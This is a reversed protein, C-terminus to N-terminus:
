VLNKSLKKSYFFSWILYIRFWQFSNKTTGRHLYSKELESFCGRKWQLSPPQWFYKKARFLFFFSCFHLFSLFFSLFFVSLFFCLFFFSQFFGTWKKVVGQKVFFRYFCYKKQYDKSTCNSPIFAFPSFDKRKWFKQLRWCLEFHKKVESNKNLFSCKRQGRL